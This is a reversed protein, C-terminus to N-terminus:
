EDFSEAGSKHPDAATSCSALEQKCTIQLL